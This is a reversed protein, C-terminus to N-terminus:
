GGLRELHMFYGGYVAPLNHSGDDITVANKGIISTESATQESFAERVFRNREIVGGRRYIPVPKHTENAAFGMKHYMRMAMVALCRGAQNLIGLAYRCGSEAAENVIPFLAAIDAKTAEAAFAVAGFVDTNLRELIRRSLETPEDEADYVAIVHKLANIAIDYGSGEDGLIHGFGGIRKITTGNKGYGISGTGSIILIGDDGKTCAYLGMKADNELRIDDDPFRNSLYATMVQRHDGPEIGACGLYIHFRPDNSTAFAKCGAIADGVHEMAQQKDVLMNGFGTDFTHLINGNIDFLAANTKTGGADVSIIYENTGM